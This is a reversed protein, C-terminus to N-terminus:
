KDVDQSGGVDTAPAELKRACVATGGKLIQRSRGGSLEKRTESGGLKYTRYGQLSGMGAFNLYM